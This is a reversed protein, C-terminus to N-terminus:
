LLFTQRFRITPVEIMQSSASLGEIFLTFPKNPVASVSYELTLCIPGTITKEFGMIKEYDIETCVYIPKEGGVVKKTELSSPGKVRAPVLRRGDELLLVTRQANINLSRDKPALRMHIRLPLDPEKEGNFLLTAIGPPRPIFPLLPGILVSTSERDGEIALDAEPLALHVHPVRYNPSFLYSHDISGNATPKDLVIKGFGACGGFTAVVTFVTLAGVTTRMM